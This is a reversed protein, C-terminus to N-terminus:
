VAEYRPSPWVLMLGTLLLIASSLLVTGFSIEIGGDAYPGGDTLVVTRSVIQPTAHAPQPEHLVVSQVGRPESLEYGIYSTLFAGIILIAGLRTGMTQYGVCCNVRLFRRPKTIEIM